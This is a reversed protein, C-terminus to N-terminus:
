HFDWPANLCNLLSLDLSFAWNGLAVYAFHSTRSEWPHKLQNIALDNVQACTGGLLLSVVLLPCKNPM